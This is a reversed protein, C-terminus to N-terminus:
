AVGAGGIRRVPVLRPVEYRLELERGWSAHVSVAAVGISIIGSLRWVLYADAGGVCFRKALGVGVVVSGEWVVVGIDVGDPGAAVRMGSGRGVVNWAGGDLSGACSRLIYWSASCRSLAEGSSTVGCSDVHNGPIGHDIEVVDGVVGRRCRRSMAVGDVGVDGLSSGRASWSERGCLQRFM